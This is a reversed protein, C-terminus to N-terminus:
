QCNISNWPGLGPGLVAPGGGLSAGMLIKITTDIILWAALIIVFGVLATRITKLGSQYLPPNAGAVLMKIGGWVMFAVALSAAIGLVFNYVNQFLKFFNCFTCMAGSGGPGCPVLAASAANVTLFFFLIAAVTFVFNMIYNLQLIGYRQKRKEDNNKITMRFTKTMRRGGGHRPAFSRALNKAVNLIAFPNKTRWNASESHCRPTLFTITLTQFVFLM